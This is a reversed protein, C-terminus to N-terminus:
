CPQTKIRLSAFSRRHKLTASLLSFPSPPHSPPEAQAPQRQVVPSAESREAHFEILMAPDKDQSAFSRRHKLTASSLSFPSPPHSPPEAQAPQRTAVPSAESREAHFEILM